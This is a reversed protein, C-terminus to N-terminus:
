VAIARAKSNRRFAAYGLGMFGIVMMAWTSPEPISNEVFSNSLGTANSGHLASITFTDTVDLTTTGPLFDVMTIGSASAAVQTFGIAYAGTNGDFVKGLTSTGTTQLIAGSASAESAHPTGVDSVAYDLTFTGGVSGFPALFSITHEDHGDVSALSLEMITGAPLDTGTFDNWLESQQQVGTYTGGGAGLYTVTGNNNWVFFGNFPSSLTLVTALAQSALVITSAATALAAIKLSHRM